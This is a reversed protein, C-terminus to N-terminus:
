DPLPPLPELLSSSELQVVALKNVAAKLRELYSEQAQKSNEICEEVKGTPNETNTIGELCSLLDTTQQLIRNRLGDLLDEASKCELLAQRKYFANSSATCQQIFERVTPIFKPTDQATQGIYNSVTAKTGKLKNRLDMVRLRDAETDFVLSSLAPAMTLVVQCRGWHVHVSTQPARAICM